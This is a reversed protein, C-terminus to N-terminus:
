PKNWVSYYCEDVILKAELQKSNQISVDYYLHLQDGSNINKKARRVRNVGQNNELWVAGNQMIQKIQQKSFDTNDSLCELVTQTQTPVIHKEFKMM